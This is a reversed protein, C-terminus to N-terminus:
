NQRRGHRRLRCLGLLILPTALGLSGALCIRRVPFAEIPATPISADALLVVQSPADRELQLKTRRESILEVMREARALEDQKLKLTLADPLDRHRLTEEYRDQLARRVSARSVLDAQMAALATERKSRGARELQEKVKPRLERCVDALKAEAKQIEGKLESIAAVKDKDATGIEAEFLRLRKQTVLKKLEQVFSDQHIVEDISAEPVEIRKAAEEQAKIKAQLTAEDLEAAALREQLNATASARSAGSEANPLLPDKGTVKLALARVQQQLGEVEATEQRMRVDLMRAITETRRAQEEDRRRFYVNVVADVVQRASTPNSGVFSVVFIESTGLQRVRVEETLWDMPNDQGAIEPMRSVEPEALVRQLVMPSHILAVETTAYEQSPDQPDAPLAVYPPRKAIRIFASAEYQPTFLLWVVFVALIALSFGLVTASAWPHRTSGTSGCSQAAHPCAPEPESM